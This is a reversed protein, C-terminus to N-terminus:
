LNMWTDYISFQRREPRQVSLRMWQNTHRVQQCLLISGAAHQESSGNVVFSSSFFKFFFFFELFPCNLYVGHVTQIGPCIVAKDLGESGDPNEAIVHSYLISTVNATVLLLASLAILLSFINSDSSSVPWHSLCQRFSIWRLSIMLVKAPFEAGSWFSNSM